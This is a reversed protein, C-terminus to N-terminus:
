KMMEKIRAKIIAPRAWVKQFKMWDRYRLGKDDRYLMCMPIFGAKITSWLRDEANRMTDGKYGVLVYCRRKNFNIGASELLRGANVLPDYDNPTDFAFFLQDIRTNKIEEVHWPKLIAAELGSLTAPHKQRRLMRFVGKIHADSCALLNDDQVNWGDKIELEKLEPERKHVSCFWCKNPCGRSTITLGQQLYQGPTFQGSPKGFAPGGIKVPAIHEWQRYLFESRKMDWTFAVSIHVEDAKVFMDPVDFFAMPDCPSQNTKRPFVRAIRM